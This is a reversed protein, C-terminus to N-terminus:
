VWDMTAISDYAGTLVEIKTVGDSGTTLKKIVWDTLTQDANHQHHMSVYEVNSSADYDIIVTGWYVAAQIQQERSRLPGINSM